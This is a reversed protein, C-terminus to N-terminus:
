GWRSGAFGNAWGPRSNPTPSMRSPNRDKRDVKSNALATPRPSRRAMIRSVGIPVPQPFRSSRWWGLSPLLDPRSCREGRGRRTPPALAGRAGALTVLDITRVAQPPTLGRSSWDTRFIGATGVFPSRGERLRIIIVSATDYLPVAMVLLPALVNFSSSKADYRFYTGAITLAGLMFGLFNSGADGMFMRAPYRNHVLFGALAGVLVLLVAPAFLSGVAVQAGVFLSAAILGVGAALGDMNDLLNFANTLGVVWLVSVAGGFVPHNFPWFLTVRVGSLVLVIALGVQVGLRLRWGLTVRDDVLGMFMILTALGLITGLEGAREWVGKFHRALEVPLVGHGLGVVLAGLALVVMTALWIALGGGLPTPQKHGKHGAPVDILGLWPPGIGSWYVFRPAGPRVRASGPEAGYRCRDLRGEFGNIWHEPLRSEGM